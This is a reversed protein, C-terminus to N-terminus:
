RRNIEGHSAPTPRGDHRLHSPDFVILTGVEGLLADPFDGEPATIEIGDYGESRLHDRFAVVTAPATRRPFQEYYRDIPMAYYRGSRLRMTMVHKKQSYAPYNAAHQPNPSVFHGLLATPHGTSSGRAADSFADFQKDTGHYVLREADECLTMIRRMYSPDHM